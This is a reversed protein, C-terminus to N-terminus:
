QALGHTHEGTMVCGDHGCTKVWPFSEARETAASAPPSLRETRSSMAAELRDVRDVLGDIIAVLRGTRASAVGLLDTAVQTFVDHGGLGEAGTGKVLRQLSATSMDTGAFLRAWKLLDEDNHSLMTTM